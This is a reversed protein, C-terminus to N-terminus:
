LIGRISTAEHSPSGTVSSSTDHERRANSASSPLAPARIMHLATAGCRASFGPMRCVLAVAMRCVLAVAAIRRGRPAAISLTYSRM